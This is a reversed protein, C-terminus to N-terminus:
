TAYIIDLVEKGTSSWALEAQLNCRAYFEAGKADIPEALNMRASLARGPGLLSQMEYIALDQGFTASAAFIRPVWDWASVRSAADKSTM